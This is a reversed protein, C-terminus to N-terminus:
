AERALQDGIKGAVAKAVEDASLFAPPLRM